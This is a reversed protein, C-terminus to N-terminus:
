RHTRPFRRIRCFYFTNTNLPTNRRIRYRKWVCGDDSVFCAVRKRQSNLALIVGAQVVALFAAEPDYLPVPVLDDDGYGYVNAWLWAVKRSKTLLRQVEIRRQEIAEKTPDDILGLDTFQRQLDTLARGSRAKQVRALAQQPTIRTETSPALGVPATQSVELEIV